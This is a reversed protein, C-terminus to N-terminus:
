QKTAFVLIKCYIRYLVTIEAVFCYIAILLSKESNKWRRPLILIKTIYVNTQDFPLSFISFKSSRLHSFLMPFFFKIKKFVPSHANEFEVSNSQSIHEWVLGTPFKM